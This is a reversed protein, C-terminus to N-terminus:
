TVGLVFGNHVEDMTLGSGAISANINAIENNVDTMSYTAWSGSLSAWPRFGAGRASVPAVLGAVVVALVLARMMCRWSISAARAVRLTRTIAAHELGTDTALQASTP